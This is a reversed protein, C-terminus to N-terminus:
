LILNIVMYLINLKNGNILERYLFNQDKFNPRYERTIDSLNLNPARIWFIM